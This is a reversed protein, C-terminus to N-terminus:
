ASRSSGARQALYADMFQEVEIRERRRSELATSSVLANRRSTAVSRVHWEGVHRLGSWTLLIRM